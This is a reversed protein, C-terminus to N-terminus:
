DETDHAHRWAHRAISSFSSALFAAWGGLVGSSITGVAWGAWGINPGFVLALAICGAIAGCVIGVVVLKMIWQNVRGFGALPTATMSELQAQTEEKDPVIPLDSTGLQDARWRSVENTTDRLRTGILNAIIHAAVLLTSIGIVMPAPGDTLTMLTLLVSCFGVFAFMQWLRFRLLHPERSSSQTTPLHNTM